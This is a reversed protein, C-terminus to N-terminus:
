LSNLDESGRGASADGGGERPIRRTGWRLAQALLGRSGLGYYDVAAKLPAVPPSALGLAVVAALMGLSARPRAISFPKLATGFSRRLRNGLLDVSAIEDLCLHTLYGLAVFLGALWSDWASMGVLHFALNAGAL